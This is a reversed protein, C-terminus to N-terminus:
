GDFVPMIYATQTEETNYHYAITGHLEPSLAFWLSANIATKDKSWTSYDLSDNQLDQYKLGASFSANKALRYTMQGSFEVISDPQNTLDVMRSNYLQFYQVSLPSLPSGPAPANFNYMGAIDVGAFPNSISEYIFHGRFTLDKVARSSLALKIRNSTSAHEGDSVEHNDRDTQKYRYSLRAKTRHAFAYNLDADFEYVTRNAWSLRNFDGTFSGDDFKERYTLGAYPGAVALPENVDVYVDDNDIDYYVGRMSLGVGKALRVAYNARMSNYDMELTTYLNEVTSRVYGANLIGKSKADYTASIEHTMKDTDPTMNFPLSGNVSWFQVRDYFVPTNLSPHKADDYVHTPTASTNRFNRGTYSYRLSFNGSDVNAAVSYDRTNEHIAHSYAVVHCNSCKSMTRVQKMGDREEHRFGFELTLWPMNEHNFEASTKLESYVVDYRATPDTDTYRTVKPATVAQLNTLPDHQLRHYLRTYDGKVRLTRDFDGAFALDIDDADNIRGYAFFGHSDAYNSLLFAAALSDKLTDYEGVRNPSDNVEHARYGFWVKAKTKEDDDSDASVAVMGLLCAALMLGLLTFVRRKM